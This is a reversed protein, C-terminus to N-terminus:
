LTKPQNHFTANVLKIAQAAAKVDHVRLIHAGKQLAITNLITTGNLSEEPTIGLTKWIMTKRSVGVLLPAQFIHFQELYHLLEFNQETTKAFGFGPDIIIDATFGSERLLNIKQAFFQLIEPILHQYQTQLQMTQPDGKSHMLIYPINLKAVLPLLEPDLMGASVDNIINVGYEKVAVEAVSARFTDVSIYLNPFHARIEKLAASVRNLEEQPSVFDAGPRTSYGGLDIIQAGQEIATACRQILDCTQSVRSGSFFSDPTVNIIGMIIPNDLNVLQNNLVIHPM